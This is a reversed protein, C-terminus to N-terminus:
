AGADGRHRGIKELADADEVKGGDPGCCPGRGDEGVVAGLHGLHTGHGARTRHRDSGRREGVRAASAGPTHLEVQFGLASAAGGLREAGGAVHHDLAETGADGVSEADAPVDQRRGVRAEDVAGGGPVALVPRGGLAGPVVQVVQRDATEEVARAAVGVTRGGQGTRRHGVDGGTAHLRRHRDHGGQDASSAAALAAVEVHRDGVADDGHHREVDVFVQHGAGPRAGAVVHQGPAVGPVADVAAGIAAPHAHAGDLRLEVGVQKAFQAEVGLAEAASLVVVVCLM